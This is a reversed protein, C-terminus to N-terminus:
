LLLEMIFIEELRPRDNDGIGRLVPGSPAPGDGVQNVPDPVVLHPHPPLCVLLVVPDALGVGDPPVSESFVALVQNLAVGPRPGAVQRHGGHLLGEWLEQVIDRHRFIELIVALEVEAGVHPDGELIMVLETVKIRIVVEKDHNLSPFKFTTRIDADASQFDIM